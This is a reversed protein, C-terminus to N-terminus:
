NNLPIQEEIADAWIFSSDTGSSFHCNMCGGSGSQVPNSAVGEPTCDPGGENGIDETTPKCYAMDYTEIASNRLRLSKPFFEVCDVPQGEVDLCLKNIIQYPPDTTEPTRGNAPWQSNVMVYNQLPSGEDKLLDRFLDNLELVSIQDINNQGIPDLRNVQIPVPKPPILGVLDSELNAPDPSSNVIIQQNPCCRLDSNDAEDFPLIGPRELICDELFEPTPDPCEPDFFSFTEPIPEGEATNGPVNDIHEFTPWIWQPAWFTKVAIHFGVLGVEAVECTAPLVITNQPIIGPDLPDIVKPTPPTYILVTETYYRSPDDVNKCTEPDTCMLKWASKVETAGEGTVGVTNDPMQFLTKNIGFPGNYDYTGTDAFGMEKMREFEDRNVRVNYHVENSNQDILNNFQSGFAQHTENLIQFTKTNTPLEAEELADRCVDPLPQDDNWNKDDLTWGTDLPQFMEYTQKYTSWVRQGSDAISKTKDPVGRQTESAPWFLGIFTKWSYCNFMRNTPEVVNNPFMELIQNPGFLVDTPRDPSLGTVDDCFGAGTSAPTHGDITPSGQLQQQRRILDHTIWLWDTDAVAGHCALCFDNAKGFAPVSSNDESNWDFSLFGDRNLFWFWEGGLCPADPDGPFITEPCFGPIKYMVTSWNLSKPNSNEPFVANNLKASISWPPAIFKEFPNMLANEIADNLQPNNWVPVFLGHMPSQINPKQVIGPLIEGTQNDITPNIERRSIFGESELHLLIDAACNLPEAECAEACTTYQDTLPVCSDNDPDIKLVVPDGNNNSDCSILLFVPIFLLFLLFYSHFTKFYLSM